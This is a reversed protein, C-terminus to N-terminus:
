RFWWNYRTYNNKWVFSEKIIYIAIIITAIISVFLLKNKSFLAGLKIAKLVLM